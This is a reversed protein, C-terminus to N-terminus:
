GGPWSIHTWSDTRHPRTAGDARGQWLGEAVEAMALREGRWGVEVRGAGPQVSRVTIGGEEVLPGLLAFPVGLRGELLAAIRPDGTRVPDAPAQGRQSAM